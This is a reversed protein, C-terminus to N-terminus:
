LRVPVLFFRRTVLTTFYTLRFSEKVREAVLPTMYTGCKKLLDSNPMRELVNRKFFQFFFFFRGIWSLTLKDDSRPLPVIRRHWRYQAFDGQYQNFHRDTGPRAVDTSCYSRTIRPPPRTDSFIAKGMKDSCARSLFVRCGPTGAYQIFM